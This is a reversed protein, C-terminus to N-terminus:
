GWGARFRTGAKSSFAWREIGQAPLARITARWYKVQERQTMGRATRGRLLDFGPARAMAANRLGFLGQPYASQRMRWRGLHM